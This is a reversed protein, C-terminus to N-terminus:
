QKVWVFGNSWSIKRGDASVTATLGSSTFTSGNLNVTSVSGYGNDVTLSSGNQTITAPKDYKVNKDNYMAWTGTLSNTSTLQKKWVFGNSWSIRNGDASVTATLGYSTFTSGNLNANTVSGYGNDVTLSSGNQTITAPKDYKVNKDNYMAWTGSLTSQNAATPAGQRVGKITIIPDLMYYMTDDLPDFNSQGVEYLFIGGIGWDKGWSNQIIWFAPADFETKALPAVLPDNPDGFISHMQGFTIKGGTFYGIVTVAHRGKSENLTNILKQKATRMAQQADESLQPSPELPAAVMNVFKQHNYVGSNYRNFDGYVGFDAVLAGQTFIFKRMADYKNLGAPLQTGSSISGEKGAKIWYDSLVQTRTWGQENKDGIIQSMFVGTSVMRGTGGDTGNIWGTNPMGEQCMRGGMIFFQMPDAITLPLVPPNPQNAVITALATSTAYAVCSGCGGQNLIMPRKGIPIVYFNPYNKDVPFPLSSTTAAPANNSVGMRAQLEAQTFYDTKRPTPDMYNPTTQALVSSNLLLVMLLLGAISYNVKVQKRIESLMKVKEQKPTKGAL